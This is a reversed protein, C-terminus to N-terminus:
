RYIQDDKVLQKKDEVYEKKDEIHYVEDAFLEGRQDKKKGREGAPEESQVWGRKERMLVREFM